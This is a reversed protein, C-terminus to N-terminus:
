PKCRRKRKTSNCEVSVVGSVMEAVLGAGKNHSVGTQEDEDEEFGKKHHSSGADPRKEEWTDLINTVAAEDSFDSNVLDLFYEAPNTAVPCPYGISEFYPIADQVDGSFAERGRSMIM